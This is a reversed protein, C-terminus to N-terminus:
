PQLGELYTTRGNVRKATLVEHRNQGARYSVHVWGSRPDGPTYFELILQDFALRGKIWAALTPNDVADCEIDAAEGKCHQSSPSGGVARNVAPSRYGSNVRTIGFEARIPELVAMCLLGMTQVAREPPVNPIDLRLATDSRTLERLTFHQSLKTM